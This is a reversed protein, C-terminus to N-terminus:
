HVLTLGTFACSKEEFVKVKESGDMNCKWLTGGLDSIYVHQGDKDVKLGIAEHFGQSLITHKIYGTGHLIPLGQGDLQVQNLTNGYPLEGRDTWLLSNKVDNFELDIPEPLDRLLCTIDSRKSALQGEPINVNASFIRGHNSKSSGKQTWFIKGLELSLAIGVCWKTQDARDDPNKWDGLQVLTEFDTGDLNSRHIRLGERDAIYLKRNKQDILLQKPTHVKGPPIVVHVDSGDVSSSMIYGDNQSPLGMCTWYLRNEVNDVDIGDPGHQKDILTRVTKGDGSLELVRGSNVIDLQTKGELPQALGIDLIVVKSPPTHLGGKPSKAGLKGDHLYQDELYKIHDSPLGREKIYHQEIFAVTDLGVGANLWVTGVNDSFSCYESDMMRCPGISTGYQEKWISDIEEPDSVGESLVMLCERKIAAWIRNIIFGTSERRAVYPHLGAEKHRKVLFPFIEPATYGDTMLEVIRKEPPMMYHTNLIRAKTSDKVKDLM